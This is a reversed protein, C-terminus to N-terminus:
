AIFKIMESQRSLFKQQNATSYIFDLALEAVIGEVPGLQSKRSSYVRIGALNFM